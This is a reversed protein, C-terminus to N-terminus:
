EVDLATEEAVEAPLKFAYWISLPFFIGIVMLARAAADEEFLKSLLGAGGPGVFEAICWVGGMLFASIMGPHETSIKHGLAVSVPSVVGLAAGYAFLLSVVAMESIQPILLFSYLLIMAVLSAVLIVSRSSFRDAIIGSPILLCVGGLMYFFHGGGYVIWDPFARFKLIDPLMFITTWMIIQSTMQSRYLNKLDKDKFFEMFKKFSPPSPPRGPREPMRTMQPILFMLGVLALPILLILTNGNFAEYVQTYVMQSFAFGMVGFAAFHTICFSKKRLSLRSTLGVAAPHFAGSGLCVLFFLLFLIAYRETFAFLTSSGVLALGTIILWKRFGKDSLQGFVIQLGEGTVSCFAYILGAIALDIGELTKFVPWVGIMFDICFHGISLGLLTPYYNWSNKPTM